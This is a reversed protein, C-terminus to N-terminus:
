KKTKPFLDAFRNLAEQLEEDVKVKTQDVIRGRLKNYEQIAGLQIKMNKRQTILYVLQNDVLSDQGGNAENMEDIRELIKKQRILKYGNARCIIRTNDDLTEIQAETICGKYSAAYSLTANGFQPPLLDQGTRPVSGTYYM